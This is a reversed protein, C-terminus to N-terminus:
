GIVVASGTFPAAFTLDLANAGTVTATLPNTLVGASSYVQVLVDVTGLNHTITVASLASWSTSYKTLGSGAAAISISGLGNTISINSGATITSKTLGGSSTNGILIQGNTYASEGTGGQNEQLIGSIETFLPQTATFAGLTSLSNIWKNAQPAFSTVGGLTTPTPPPLATPNITPSSSRATVSPSRDLDSCNGNSLQTQVFFTLISATNTVVRFKAPSVKASNVFIPATNDSLAGRVYINYHSINTVDTPQDWLLTYQTGGLYVISPGLRFNKIFPVRFEGNQKPPVATGINPDGSINILTQTINNLTNTNQM